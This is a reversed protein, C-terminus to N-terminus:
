GRAACLDYERAIDGFHGLFEPPAYRALLEQTTEAGPQATVRFSYMDVNYIRALLPAKERKPEKGRTRSVWTRGCEIAQEKSAFPGLVIDLMWHPAAMCTNRDVFLRHNHCFLDVLPNTTYGVHSDTKSVVSHSMLYIFYRGKYPTLTLESKELANVAISRRGHQHRGTIKLSTRTSSMAQVLCREIDHQQAGGGDDGDELLLDCVLQAVRRKEADVLSEDLDDCDHEDEDGDHNHDVVDFDLDPLVRFLM